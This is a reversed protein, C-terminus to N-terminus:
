DEDAPRTPPAEDIEKFPEPFSQYSQFAWKPKGKRMARINDHKIRHCNACLCEINHEAHNLVLDQYQGKHTKWEPIIHHLCLVREDEIGCLACRNGLEERIKKTLSFVQCAKKGDRKYTKRKM